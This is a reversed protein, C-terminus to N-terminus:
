KKYNGKKYNKMLKGFDKDKKRKEAVTSEFHQQERTMRLYNEYSAQDIAGTELAALVACGTETTHSCDKFRCEESLELITGFTLEIGGVSDAMGVERMGPNDIIIGGSELVKLERHTTVHKGRNTHESIVDTQMLQQGLLTNLLTSKGVGSSGLLCYTKGQDLMQKLEDIGQKSENSITLIPVDKVRKRVSELLEVSAAAEILDIKGLIVIPEVNSNHCIALYREIRNISFDRDVALVIFAKDINTAIIQKEGKKGVAQREIVSKRPLVAHILAKDDDYESVAVWDGVAPFDARSQASFRLNGLIEADYETEATKVVYREKHEAIVRGITFTGLGHETRYHELDSTYGLDELTM